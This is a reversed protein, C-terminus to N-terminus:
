FTYAKAKGVILAQRQGSNDNYALDIPKVFGM